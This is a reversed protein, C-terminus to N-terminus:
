VRHDREVLSLFLSHFLSHSHNEIVEPCYGTFFIGPVRSFLPSPNRKHTSSTSSHSLFNAPPFFSLPFNEQRFSCFKRGKVAYVLESEGRSEEDEVMATQSEREREQNNRREREEDEGEEVWQLHLQDLHTNTLPFLPIFLSHFLLLPFLNRLGLNQTSCHDASSYFKVRERRKTLM